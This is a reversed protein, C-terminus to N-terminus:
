RPCLSYPSTWSLRMHATIPSECALFDLTVSDFDFRTFAQNVWTKVTGVFSYVLFEAIVSYHDDNSNTLTGSLTSPVPQFADGVSGSSFDFVRDTSPDDWFCAFQTTVPVVQGSASAQYLRVRYIQGPKAQVLDTAKVGVQVNSFQVQTSGSTLVIKGTAQPICFRGSNKLPNMLAAGVTTAPVYLFTPWIRSSMLADAEDTLKGM